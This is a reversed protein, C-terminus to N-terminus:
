DVKWKYEVHVEEMENSYDETWVMETNSLRHLYITGFNESFEVYTKNKDSDVWFWTGSSSSVTGNETIELEYRGDDKISLSASYTTSVTTSTVGNSTTVSRNAGDYTTTVTITQPTGGQTSTSVVSTLDTLKWDGKLRVDRSRFSIFPDDEGRKCSAFILVVMTSLLLFSLSNRM